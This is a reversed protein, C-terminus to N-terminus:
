AIGLVAAPLRDSCRRGRAWAPPPQDSQRWGKPEAREWNPPTPSGQTPERGQDHNSEGRETRGDRRHSKARNREARHRHRQAEARSRQPTQHERRQRDRHPRKRPRQATGRNPTTQRAPEAEKVHDNRGGQRQGRHRAKEPQNEARQRSETTARRTDKITHPNGWM